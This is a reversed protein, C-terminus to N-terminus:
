ILKEAAQTVCPRQLEKRYLSFCVNKVIIAIVSTVAADTGLHCDELEGTPLPPDTMTCVVSPCVRKSSTFAASVPATICMGVIVSILELLQNRHM